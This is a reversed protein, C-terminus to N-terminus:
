IKETRKFNEDYFLPPFGADINVQGDGRGGLSDGSNLLCAIELINQLLLFYGWKPRGQFGDSDSHHIAQSMWQINNKMM